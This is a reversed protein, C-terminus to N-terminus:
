LANPSHLFKVIPKEGLFVRCMTNFLSLNRSELRRVQSFGLDSLDDATGFEVFSFDESKHDSSM